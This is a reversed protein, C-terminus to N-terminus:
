SLICQQVCDLLMFVRKTNANTLFFFSLEKKRNRRKGQEIKKHFFFWVIELGFVDMEEVWIGTEEEKNGNIYSIKKAVVVVM